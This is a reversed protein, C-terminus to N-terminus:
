FVAADFCFRSEQGDICTTTDNDSSYMVPSGAVGAGVLGGRSLLGTLYVRVLIGLAPSRGGRTVGEEMISFNDIVQISM